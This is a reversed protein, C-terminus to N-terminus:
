KVKTLYLCPTNLDLIDIFDVERLFTTLGIKFSAGNTYNIDLHHEPHDERIVDHDFRLYGPEFSLLYTILSGYLNTEESSIQFDSAIDWYNELISEITDAGSLNFFTAELVTCAASTIEFHEHSLVCKGDRVSFAFPFHFSHIKDKESLFVRRMKDIYIVLRIKGDEIEKPNDLLPEPKTMMLYRSIGVILQIVDIKSRISSSYHIIDPKVNFSYTKM